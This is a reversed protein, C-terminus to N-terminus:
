TVIRGGAGVETESKTAGVLGFSDGQEMAKEVAAAVMGPEIPM